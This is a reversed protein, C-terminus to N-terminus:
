STTPVAEDKAPALGRLWVECAITTYLIGKSLGPSSPRRALRRLADADVLGLEALRSDEWLAMLDGRHERLGNAADMSAEAKNTRSLCAEPVVGRMAASLLPKYQWPTVRESPRVALCAEIVRDDFFPHAMPLGARAAMRDWQRIIRTCSRIQELDTHMGRDRHLPAVSAAAERLARGVMREADPTVWHFLRPSMGWGLGNSVSSPLPGRLRRSSDALWRGYSRCDALARATGALPWHWLARFGRLQQLAFLPRTRLLRHYYAESCWAVHDGGIGTLHLRSGREALGPLHHLARSRDMVGITPEDMPDDIDLLDTYVLPSADADWVVHEVDPLFSVAKEAWQLDTDAPDRGPWTSALVKAPSRAALFCVSTSDLGGSLDCSIVGGDRTRADVAEALVERVIPAGDALTRTPEPPTWWRSRRATRGDPEIILADDPPVAAIGRWISSEFLPYPAPWLLRVALQEPDPEAGIAAALLDARSAAVRVGGVSADFVLRLGSAAGQVRVRGGSSAVLHFSGPLTRALTELEALDRLRAARRELEGTDVPCCGIVALSTQGARVSVCEHEGWEGILWPRGSAHSLTQTGPRTFSRAVAAADACDPFVAFYADGPGTGASEHLEPM